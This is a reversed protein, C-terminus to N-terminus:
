VVYLEPPATRMPFFLEEGPDNGCGDVEVARQQYPKTKGDGLGFNGNELISLTVVEFLSLGEERGSGTVKDCGERQSRAGGPPLLARQGDSEEPKLSNTCKTSRIRQCRIVDTWLGSVLLPAKAPTALITPAGFKPKCAFAQQPKGICEIKRLWTPTHLVLTTDLFCSRQAPNPLFTPVSSMRHM